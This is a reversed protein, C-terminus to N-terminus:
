KIKGENSATKRMTSALLRDYERKVVNLRDRLSRFSRRLRMQNRQAEDM